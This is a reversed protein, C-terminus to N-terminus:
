GGDGARQQGCLRSVDVGRVVFALRRQVEDDLFLQGLHHLKQQRLAGIRAGGIFPAARGQM